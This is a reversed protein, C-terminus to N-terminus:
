EYWFFVTRAQASYIPERTAFGRSLVLRRAFRNPSSFDPASARKKERTESDRTVMAANGNIKLKLITINQVKIYLERFQVNAAITDLTQM